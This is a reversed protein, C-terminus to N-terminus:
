ISVRRSGPYILGIGKILRCYGLYRKQHGSCAIASYDLRSGTIGIARPDHGDDQISNGPRSM